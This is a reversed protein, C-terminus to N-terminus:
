KVLKSLIEIERKSSANMHILLIYKARYLLIMSHNFNFKLELDLYLMLENFSIDSYIRLLYYSQFRM